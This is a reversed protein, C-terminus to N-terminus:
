ARRKPGVGLEVRIGEARTVLVASWLLLSGALMEGYEEAFGLAKQQYGGDPTFNALLELGVASFGFLAVGLFGLVVVIRRERLYPWLSWLAIGGLVAVLPAFIFMWPATRMETGIGLTQLWVGLREHIMAIEDLSLFFFLGPVAVLMRSRRSRGGSDRFALAAMVLGITFLQSASFWTPLNSEEGVKLMVVDADILFSVIAAGAILLGGILFAKVLPPAHWRNLPASRREIPELRFQWDAERSTRNRPDGRDTAPATDRGTEPRDTQQKRAASGSLERRSADSL